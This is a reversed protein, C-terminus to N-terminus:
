LNEIHIPTLKDALPFGFIRSYFYLEAEISSRMNAADRFGHGESAYAVYAFPLRKERLAAIMTEAQSPPVVKDELGQLIILPCSLRGSEGPRHQPDKRAGYDRYQANNPEKDAAVDM